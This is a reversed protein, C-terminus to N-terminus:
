LYKLKPSKVNTILARKNINAPNTAGPNSTSPNQLASKPASKNDIKLIPSLLM